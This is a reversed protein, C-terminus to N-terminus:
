PRAGAGHAQKAIANVVASRARPPAGTEQRVLTEQIGIQRRRLVEFQDIGEQEDVLHTRDAVPRAFGDARRVVRVPAELGHRVREFAFELVLIRRSVAAHKAGAIHLPHRSAGSDDVRLHGRLPNPLFPAADVAELHPDVQRRPQLHSAGAVLFDRGRANGLGRRRVATRAHADHGAFRQAGARDDIRLRRDDVLVPRQRLPGVHVDRDRGVM